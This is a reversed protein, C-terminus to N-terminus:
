IWGRHQSLFDLLSRFSMATRFLRSRFITFSRSLVPGKDQDGFIPVASLRVKHNNVIRCSWGAKRLDRLLSEALGAEGGFLPACGTVDLLLSDPLPVEDLGVVPAYRRTLEAVTRLMARDRLPQWERFEVPVIVQPPQQSRAGRRADQKPVVPQAM